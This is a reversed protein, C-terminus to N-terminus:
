KPTAKEKKQCSKRWQCQKNTKKFIFGTTIEKCCWLLPQKKKILGSEKRLKKVYGEKRVRRKADRMDEKEEVTDILSSSTHILNKAEKLSKVSCGAFLIAAWVLLGVFIASVWVVSPEKEKKERGM